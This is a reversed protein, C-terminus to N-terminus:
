KTLRYSEGGCCIFYLQRFVLLLYFMDGIGWLIPLWSWWAHAWYGSFMKCKAQWRAIVQELWSWFTSMIDLLFALLLPVLAFAYFHSSPFVIWLVPPWASGLSHFKFIFPLEVHDNYNGISNLMSSLLGSFKSSSPIQDRLEAVCTCDEM